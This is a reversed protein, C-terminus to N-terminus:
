RWFVKNLQAIANQHIDQVSRYSFLMRQERDNELVLRHGIDDELLKFQLRGDFTDRVLKMDPRYQLMVQGAERSLSFGANRFMRILAKYSLSTGFYLLVAGLAFLLISMVSAEEHMIKGLMAMSLMLGIILAATGSLVGFVTNWREAKCVLLQYSGNHHVVTLGLSKLDSLEHKELEEQEIFHELKELDAETLEEALNQENIIFRLACKADYSLHHCEKLLTRIDSIDKHRYQQLFAEM